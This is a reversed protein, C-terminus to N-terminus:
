EYNDRCIWCLFSVFWRFTIYENMRFRYKKSQLWKLNCSRLFFSKEPEATHTQGYCPKHERTTENNVETGKWMCTSLTVRGWIYNTIGRQNIYLVRSKNEKRERILQKPNAKFLCEMHSLGTCVMLRKMCTSGLCPPLQIVWQTKHFCFM